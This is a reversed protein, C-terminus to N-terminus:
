SLSWNFCVNHDLFHLKYAPKLIKGEYGYSPKSDLVFKRPIVIETGGDTETDNTDSLADMDMVAVYSGYAADDTPPIPETVTIDTIVVGMDDALQQTFVFICSMMYMILLFKRLFLLVDHVYYAFTLPDLYKVTFCKDPLKCM